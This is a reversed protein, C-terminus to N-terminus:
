HAAAWNQGIGAEAVLPIGVDAAAEMERKVLAQAEAAQDARVEFVLEDHVQILMRLDLNSTKIARDIRIMARKMIDAATGQIPANIAQREAGGRRAPNKDNIGDVHCRRGYLTTVYGYKRAEQKTREMYDALEPFRSFYQKIYASAEGVPVGLQRALGFGSIGYVIGFNIAKARRRLEPTMQDLPVGFVESATLAHIDIGKEFARKLAPIDAMAAALRLEVQSYDASILTYGEQAIFATRIKRGEETRIPINQLNPDTSAFRGTSTAALSFSTHVRGTRPAIQQALADTYTSKLKSLQRWELVLTIIEHGEEALEELVDVSTSWDGTKTKRGGTLGMEVFLIEGLQKPSGVNFPRGALKQIEAELQVLKEGFDRSMGALVNIDVRVGAREMEAVIAVLPRDITEYLEASRELPLRPKLVEYLRLTIDADEAAYRTAPELPVYDFTVRKAGKGAVEDFTITKYGLHLMALEDMGHGHRTGDLVYSMLLTDDYSLINLGENAFIQMDYKINHGVKLVSRDELLPKLIALAQAKDMQVLKQQNGMDLLDTQPQRHALPIYAARGAKACISIGVLGAKAPTLGTTETDVAVIGTEYAQKVWAELTPADVICAYEVNAVQQPPAKPEHAAQSGANARAILESTSETKQEAKQGIRNLLARFGHHTLFAKLAISDLPGSPKLDELPLPRPANRDLMVLKKSIRAVEANVELAERRKPQKITATSALLTELDGYQNILEAATKVGIGPVGPVNDVSDGALAQVDVVKDPTVGFKEFVEPACLRKTKIPDYLCVKDDVLQMLDKDSSVIAVDYGKAKAEEAYAAILDDAEFGEVEIGPLGFATTAARILPFQPVLDEPPADRNAKYQEYIDNRFNTRAADFIVAIHEARLDKLLRFLMNCYGMVANVPTGEPNNLPPLAHYARFIFGSGDVLYLTKNAAEQTM